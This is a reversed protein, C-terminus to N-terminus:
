RSFTHYAQAAESSMCLGATLDEANLDTWDGSRIPPCVHLESSFHFCRGFNSQTLRYTNGIKNLVYMDREGENHWELM